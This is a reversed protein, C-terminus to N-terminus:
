KPTTHQKPPPKKKPPTKNTQTTRPNYTKQMHHAGDLTFRIFEDASDDLKGQYRKALLQLFSSIMRLPEQLDHSAVYAFQELEENRLKLDRAHQKIVVESRKRNHIEEELANSKNLLEQAEIKRRTIDRIITSFFLQGEVEWCALSIEIPLETGDQRLGYIEVISGDIQHNESELCYEVAKDYAEQFREPLITFISKGFIDALSYGFMNQSAHNWSVIRGGRNTIVIAEPSSEILSRFRQESQRLMDEIMKQHMLVGLQGCVATAMEIFPKDREKIEQLYFCLVAIAEGKLPIPVAIASKIGAACATLRTLSPELTINDMWIVNKRQWSIGPLGEGKRLRLGWSEAQFAQLEVSTKNCYTAICHIEEGKVMWADGCVWYSENCLKELTFSLAEDVTKSTSIAFSLTLLLRYEQLTYTFDHEFTGKGEEGRRDKGSESVANDMYASYARTVFLPLCYNLRRLAASIRM